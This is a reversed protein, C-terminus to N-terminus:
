SCHPCLFKHLFTLWMSCRLYSWISFEQISMLDANLGTSTWEQQPFLLCVLLSKWLWEMFSKCQLVFSPNPTAYIGVLTCSVSTLSHFTVWSFYRWIGPSATRAQRCHFLVPKSYQLQVCPGQKEYFMLQLKGFWGLSVWYTLYLSASIPRQFRPAPTEFKLKLDPFPTKSPFPRCATVNQLTALIWHLVFTSFYRFFLVMTTM